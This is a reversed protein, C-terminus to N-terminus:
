EKRPDDVATMEIRLGGQFVTTHRLHWGLRRLRERGIKSIRIEEGKLSIEASRPVINQWRFRREFLLPRNAPITAAFQGRLRAPPRTSDFEDAYHIARGRVAADVDLRALGPSVEIVSIESLKEAAQSTIEVRDGHMRLQASGAIIDADIRYEVRSDRHAIEGVIRYTGAAGTMRGSGSLLLGAPAAESAPIMWAQVAYTGALKLDVLALAARANWREPANARIHLRLDNPHQLRLLELEVTFDKTQLRAGEILLFPEAGAQKGQPQSELFAVLSKLDARSFFGRHVFAYRLFDPTVRLREVRLRHGTFMPVAVEVARKLGINGLETTFLLLLGGAAIASAVVFASSFLLKLSASQRLISRIELWLTPPPPEEADAGLPQPPQAPAVADFRGRIYELSHGRPSFKPDFRRIIECQVAVPDLGGSDAAAGLKRLLPDEHAPLRAPASGFLLLGREVWVFILVAALVLALSLPVLWQLGTTLFLFVLGLTFIRILKTIM